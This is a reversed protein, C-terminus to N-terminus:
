NGVRQGNVWLPCDVHLGASDLYMVRPGAGGQAPWNGPSLHWAYQPASFRIGPYGSAAYAMSYLDVWTPNAVIKLQTSGGAYAPATCGFASGSYITVNKPLRLDLNPPYFEMMQNNQYFTLGTGANSALSMRGDPADSRFTLGAASNVSSAFTKDGAITQRDATIVGAQKDSAVPYGNTLVPQDGASPVGDVSFINGSETLTFDDVPRQVLPAATSYARPTYIANGSVIIQGSKHGGLGSARILIQSFDAVLTNGSVILPGPHLMSITFGPTGAGGHWRCKSVIIPAPNWDAKESHIFGCSGESNWGEINTMIQFLGLRFDAKRHYGGSGRIWHFFCGYEAWGGYDANNGGSMGCDAFVVNHIQSGYIHWAHLRYGTFECFTFRHLENNQDLGPPNVIDVCRNCKLQNNGFLVHDITCATSIYRESGDAKRTIKLMTNCDTVCTLTLNRLECHHCGSMEIMDQDSPGAWSIITGGATGGDVILGINSPIKLTRTLTHVGPPVQVLRGKDDGQTQVVAAAVASQLDFAPQTVCLSGILTVMTALM